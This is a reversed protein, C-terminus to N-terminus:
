YIVKKTRKNVKTLVLIQVLMIVIDWVSDITDVTDTFVNDADETMKQTSFKQNLFGKLEINWDTLDIKLFVPHSGASLVLQCENFINKQIEILEFTETNKNYFKIEIKSDNIRLQKAYLGITSVYKFFALLSLIAFITCIVFHNKVIFFVLLSIFSVVFYLSVQKFRFKRNIRNFTNTM